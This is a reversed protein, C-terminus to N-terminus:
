FIQWITDSIIVVTHLLSTIPSFDPYKHYRITQMKNQLTENLIRLYAFLSIQM